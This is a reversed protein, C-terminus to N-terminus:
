HSVDVELFNLNSCLDLKEFSFYKAFKNTFNQLVHKHFSRQLPIIGVKLFCILYVAIAIVPFFIKVVSGQKSDEMALFTPSLDM